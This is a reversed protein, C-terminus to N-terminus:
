SAVREVDSLARVVLSGLQEWGELTVARNNLDVVVERDGV